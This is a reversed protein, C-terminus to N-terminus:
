RPERGAVALGSLGLIVLGLSSPEPVVTFQQEIVSIAALDGVATVMIDKLVRLHRQPSEFVVEDTLMEVDPQASAYVLMRDTLLEGGPLSRFDETITALAGAGDVAGNFFMSASVINSGLSWVDYQLVLDGASGGAVGIPGVLRFGGPTNGGPADDVIVNYDSLLESLAGSVTAEFNDFMLKGDASTFSEGGVLDALSISFANANSPWALACGMALTAALACLRERAGKGQARELM